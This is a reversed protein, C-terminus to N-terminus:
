KRGGMKPYYILYSASFSNLKLRLCARDASWNGSQCKQKKYIEFETSTLNKSIQQRVIDADSPNIRPSCYPQLEEAILKLTELEKSQQYIYGFDSGFSALLSVANSTSQIRNNFGFCFNDITGKHKGNRYARDYSENLLRTHLEMMKNAGKDAFIEMRHLILEIRNLYTQMKEQAKKLESPLSQINQNLKGSTKLLEKSDFLLDVYRQNCEILINQNIMKNAACDRIIIPALSTLVSTDLHLSKLSEMSSSLKNLIPKVEKSFVLQSILFIITILNFKMKVVGIITLM